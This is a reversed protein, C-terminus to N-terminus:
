EKQKIEFIFNYTAFKGKSPIKQYNIKHELKLCNFDKFLDLIHDQDSFHVPGLNEFFGVCNDMTHSDISVTSETSKAYSHEKSFWDVGIYKGNKNLKSKIISICSKISETDNHTLAARDIILDFSADFPIEKTFDGCAVKNELSPFMSKVKKVATESGDITYYDVGINLFFPINAGPGCGIELVKLNKTPKLIMVDSVIDSWPWTVMHRNAKYIEEWAKM